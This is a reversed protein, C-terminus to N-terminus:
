LGHGDSVAQEARHARIIIRVVPIEVAGGCRSVTQEPLFVSSARRARQHCAFTTGLRAASGKQSDLFRKASM